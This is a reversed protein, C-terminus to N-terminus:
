KNETYVNIIGEKIGDSIKIIDSIDTIELTSALQRVYVEQKQKGNSGKQLFVLEKSKQVEVILVDGEPFKLFERKLLAAFSPNFYEKIKSDFFLGFGDRNKKGPLENYDNELGIISKNDSVGILLTGGRKNAFGCLTKLSSHIILNKASKGKIGDIDKNLSEKHKENKCNKLEQEKKELEQKQKDDLIPTFFTSKFELTESEDDRIKDMWYKIKDSNEQKFRDIYTEKVSFFGDDIYSKIKQLNKQIFSDDIDKSESVLLNNALIIKSITKLSHHDSYADLLNILSKIGSDSTDNFLGLINVFFILKQTQPFNELTQKQSEAVKLVKKAEEKVKFLKEITFSNVVDEILQLLKFYELYFNLLYSRANKISSFFIKSFELNVIKESLLKNTMAFQEFCCAIEYQRDEMEQLEKVSSEVTNINQEFDFNNDFENDFIENGYSLQGFYGLEIQAGINLVKVTIENNAIFTKHLKEKSWNGKPLNEIKLLGEGWYGTIFIGYDVVSKVWGSVIDNNKVAIKLNDRFIYDDDNKAPQSAIFFSFEENLLICEVSLTFNVKPNKYHKLTKEKIHYFPLFGLIGEFEVTYGNVERKTASVQLLTNHELARKIKDLSHKKPISLQLNTALQKTDIELKNSYHLPISELELNYNLYFYANCILQSKSSLNFNSYCLERLTRGLLYNTRGIKKLKHNIKLQCYSLAFYMREEEDSKFFTNESSSLYFGRIYDYNYLNKKKKEILLDLENLVYLTENDFEYSILNSFYNVLNLEDIRKIDSFWILDYLEEIQSNTNANPRNTFFDNINQSKLTTLVSVFLNYKEIQAKVKKKTEKRQETTPFSNIIGSELIWNELLIVLEAIELSSDYDFRSVSHNFYRKLIKNCFTFIWFASKYSYQELLKKSDEENEEFKAKNFYKLIQKKDELIEDIEVFYPDKYNVQTLEIRKPYIYKIRCEISDGIQLFQKQAPLSPTQHICGDEGMLKIIDLKEGSKYSVKTEFGKVEFSYIEEVNYIPHREDAIKLKPLGTSTFDFIECIITPFKWLKSNHWQSCKLYVENHYFELIFAPYSKNDKSDRIIGFGKIKFEYKCGVKFPCNSYDSNRLYIKGRKIKVTCELSSQKDDKNQWVFSQVTVPLHNEVKLSFSNVEGVDNLIKELIQFRYTQGDKYNPHPQSLFFKQQEEDFEKIFKHASGVLLNSDFVQNIPIIYDLGTEIEQVALYENESIKKRGIIICATEIM